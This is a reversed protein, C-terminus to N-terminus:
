FAPKFANHTLDGLLRHWVHAPNNEVMSVMERMKALVPPETEEYVDGQLLKLIDLRYRKDTIFYTFLVNLRYYVTIFNYWNTTGRRITSEYDAYTEREFKGTELARLIDKHAFRSSNLAISVGTSFIPDVFRGADGVMLWRDGAIQSMAYSYDGEEKFPRLQKAERLKQAVKPRSGVCEWFFDERSAKTKAFTRRQTVVGVSTIRDTIPIQWIWSNTLPLFHIFIFDEQSTKQSWALRDFDEFWTHIAFQDFVDDRIRVKLQNGLLTRRGSADVVVDCSTEGKRGAIDYEIRPRSADSFDVRSVRVGEYVDAGLQHAHQLLLTDFKSRDVHYTYDQGLGQDREEFRLVPGDPHAEIKDLGDWDHDYVPGGKAATWAAGYKHPFKSEEMVKLFDLDRFVRTSSPVLSEGVHPRPFLESEFVTCKVGNKALYAAMSAGAPGGGIIGVQTDAKERTMPPCYPPRASLVVGAFLHLLFLFYASKRKRRSGIRADLATLMPSAMFTTVLATLVLIADLTPSIVGAEAGVSIVVLGILGRANLLSGLVAGQRWSLGAARAAVGSGGFKGAIAAVVTLVLLWVSGHILGINIRLGTVVFFLPLLLVLLLDESRHRISYVVQRDKPMVTGVIFAGFLAHVGLWDTVWASALAVGIIVAFADQGLDNDRQARRVVWQLGPGVGKFMILVYVILEVLSVALGGRPREPHALATIVALLCWATVDDIAACAIAINGLTTGTLRHETLLRALVPFATVSLATGVFLAFTVFSVSDNSVRPYLVLAVLGGLFLPTVISVHSTLVAAHGRGRLANLDLELGILFMFLLLGIQSLANLFLVTGTPFLQAYVGPAVWGLVSPGLLIGAIMEGVVQPQGLSRLGKGVIRSLAIVVIIQALFVPVRFTTISPPPAIGLPTSAVLSPAHLGRGLAFVVALGLLPIGVLVPYAWRRLTAGTAHDAQDVLDITTVPLPPRNPALDPPTLVIDLHATENAM